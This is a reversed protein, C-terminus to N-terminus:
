NCNDKCRQEMVIMNVSGVRWSRSWDKTFWGQEEETLNGAFDDDLVVPGVAWTSNGHAACKAARNVVDGM